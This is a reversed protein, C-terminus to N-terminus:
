TSIEFSAAHHHDPMEIMELSARTTDPRTSNMEENLPKGADQKRAQAQLPKTRAKNRTSKRKGNGGNKDPHIGHKGLATLPKQKKGHYAGEAPSDKRSLTLYMERWAEIMEERERAFKSLLEILQTKKAALEKKRAQSEDRFTEMMKEVETHLARLHEERKAALEERRAQSEENFGELMDAVCRNLRSLHEERQEALEKKRAASSAKLEEAREAAQNELNLLNLERQRALREKRVAGQLKFDEMLAEVQERLRTLHKERKEALEDRVISGEVRFSEIMESVQRHLGSLYEERNKHSFAVEEAFGALNKNKKPHPM